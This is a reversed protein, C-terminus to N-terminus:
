ERRGQAGAAARYLLRIYPARKESYPGLLRRGPATSILRTLRSKGVGPVRGGGGWGSDRIRASLGGKKRVADGAGHSRPCTALGWQAGGAILSPLSPQVPRHRNAMIGGHHGM